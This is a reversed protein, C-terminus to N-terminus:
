CHKSGSLGRTSALHSWDAATASAANSAPDM